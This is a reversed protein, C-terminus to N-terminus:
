AQIVLPIIMPRRRHTDNVWRGVRRRILQQLQYTDQVGDALADELDGVLLRIVPDFVHDDEAFGRAHIEPGSIIKSTHTSIVTIVSIFGEEGLIRRDKLSAESINGVSAGDVFIYGADVSGTRRARGQQLDVVTGDEALIVRDRPVGTAVALDGCAILHRTEGHVPMVNRPRIMNFCYLLEGAAAHGPCM